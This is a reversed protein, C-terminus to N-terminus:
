PALCICVRFAELNDPDKCFELFGKARYHCFPVEPAQSTMFTMICLVLWTCLYTDYVVDGLHDKKHQDMKEHNYRYVHDMILGDNV